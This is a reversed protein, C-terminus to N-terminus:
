VLFAKFDEHARNPHFEVLEYRALDLKMFPDNEVFDEAVKKDKTTLIIIGGSRPVKAGATAVIGEAINRDLYDRHAELALEIEELPQIYTVNVIFM